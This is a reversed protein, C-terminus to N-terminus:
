PADVSELLLDGPKLIDGQLEATRGKAPLSGVVHGDLHDPVSIKVEMKMSELVCLPDGAKLKDGMKVVYKILEGPIDTGLELPNASDARRPGSVATSVASANPDPLALEITQGNHLFNMTVDTNAAKGFGLFEIQEQASTDTSDTLM